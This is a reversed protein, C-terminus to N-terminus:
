CILLPLLLCRRRKRMRACLLSFAAEGNNHPSKNRITCGYAGLWRIERRKKEVAIQWGAHSLVWTHMPATSGCTQTDALSATSGTTVFTMDFAGVSIDIMLMVLLPLEIVGCVVHKAESQVAAHVMRVVCTEWQRIKVNENSNNGRKRKAIQLPSVLTEHLPLPVHLVSRM